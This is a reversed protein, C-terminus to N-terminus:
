LRELASLTARPRSNACWKPPGPRRKEPFTFNRSAWTPNAPKDRHAQSPLLLDACISSDKLPQMKGITWYFNSKSWTISSVVESTVSLSSSSFPDLNPWCDVISPIGFNLTWSVGRMNLLKNSLAIVLVACMGGSKQSHYILNSTEWDDLWGTLTPQNLRETSITDAGYAGLDEVVTLSKKPYLFSEHIKAVQLWPWSKRSAARTPAMSLNRHFASPVSVLRPRGINKQPPFKGGLMVTWNTFPSNQIVNQSPPDSLIFAKM